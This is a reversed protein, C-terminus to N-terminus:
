LVALTSVLVGLPFGPSSPPSPPAPLEDLTASAETMFAKVPREAKEGEEEDKFGVSKRRGVVVPSPSPLPPVPVLKDNNVLRALLCCSHGGGCGRVGWLAVNGAADACM